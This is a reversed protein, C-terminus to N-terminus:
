TSFKFELLTRICVKKEYSQELICPHIKERKFQEVPAEYADWDLTQRAQSMQANFNMKSNYGHFYCRDLFLGTNLVDRDNSFQFFLFLRSMNSVQHHM